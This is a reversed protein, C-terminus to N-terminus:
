PKAPATPAPAQKSLQEQIFAFAAAGQRAGLRVGSYDQMALMLLAALVLLLVGYKVGLVLGETAAHTIRTWM